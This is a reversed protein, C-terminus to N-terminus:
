THIPWELPIVVIKRSDNCVTHTHTRIIYIEKIIFCIFYVSTFAILDCKIRYGLSKFFWSVIFWVSIQLTWLNITNSCIFLNDFTM